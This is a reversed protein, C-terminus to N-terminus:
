EFNDVTVYNYLCVRQKLLNRPVYINNMDPDDHYWPTFVAVKVLCVRVYSLQLNNTDLVQRSLITSMQQSIICQLTQNADFLVPPPCVFFHDPYIGQKNMM